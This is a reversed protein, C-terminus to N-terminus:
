SCMLLLIATLRARAGYGARGTYRALPWQIHDLGISGTSEARIGLANTRLWAKVKEFNGVTSTENGEWLESPPWARRKEKRARVGEVKVANYTGMGLKKHMKAHAALKKAQTTPQGRFTQHREGGRLAETCHWKTSKSNCLGVL